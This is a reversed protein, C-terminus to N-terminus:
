FFFTILKTEFRIHWNKSRPEVEEFIEYDFFTEKFFSSEDEDFTKAVLDDIDGSHIDSDNTKAAQM